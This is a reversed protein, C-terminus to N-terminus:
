LLPGIVNELQQPTIAGTHVYRIVGDRDIIFSTPLGRVKYQDLVSAQTDLLVPFTFGQAKIFRQVTAADEQSNIALVVFGDNQHAQYYEHIAPMEAKCPPCWTAWTNVLIVQGEYDSLAVTEGSLAPLQFDAAIAGIRASTTPTSKEAGQEGMWFLVVIGGVILMIAIAINVYLWTRSKAQQQRAYTKSKKRFSKTTM